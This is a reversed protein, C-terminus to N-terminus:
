KLFDPIDLDDDSEGPPNVPEVLRSQEQSQAKGFPSGQTQPRIPTPQQSDASQRSASSSSGASTSAAPGMGAGFIGASSRNSMAPRSAPRQSIGPQKTSTTQGNEFGAAIVTVRVEDGLADDIITGFIINAEDHAAAEILNAASAVEFLGLDSGGAISLLVGRAGDISM